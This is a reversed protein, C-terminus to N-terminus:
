CMNWVDDTRPFLEPQPRVAGGELLLVAPPETAAEQVPPEVTIVQFAALLRPDHDTIRQFTTPSCTTILQTARKSVEAWFAPSNAWVGVLRELDEIFLLMGNPSHSILDLLWLPRGDAAVRFVTRGKLPEPVDGRAIRQSLGEMLATKGVGLEGVLLVNNRTWRSLVQVIRDLEQDRGVVPDLEGAAAALTLDRGLNPVSAWPVPQTTLTPKNLASMRIAMRALPDTAVNLKWLVKVGVSEGAGILSLLIHETDVDSHGLRSAESAALELVRRCRVSFPMSESPPHQGRGVTAEVLQRAAELTVAPVALAYAAAGGGSILGLLLHETGVYNHDLRRAEQQALGVVNRAQATYREFM